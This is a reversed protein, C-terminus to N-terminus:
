LKRPPKTPSKIHPLIDAMLKINYQTITFDPGHQKWMLGIANRRWFTSTMYHPNRKLELAVRRCLLDIKRGFLRNGFFSKGSKSKSNNKVKLLIDKTIGLLFVKQGDLIITGKSFNVDTKKLNLVNQKRFGQIALLAFAAADIEDPLEPILEIIKEWSVPPENKKDRYFKLIRKKNSEKSWFTKRTTSLTPIDNTIENVRNKIVFEEFLTMTHVYARSAGQMRTQIMSLPHQDPRSNNRICSLAKSVHFTPALGKDLLWAKYQTLLDTAKM